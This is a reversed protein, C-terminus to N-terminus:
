ADIRRCKEFCVESSNYVNDLAHKSIAEHVWDYWGMTTYFPPVYLAAVKYM